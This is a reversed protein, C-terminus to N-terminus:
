KIEDMKLDIIFKMLGLLKRTYPFTEPSRVNMYTLGITKMKGRINGLKVIRKM